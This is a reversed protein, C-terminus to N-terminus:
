VKVMNELETEIYNKSCPSFMKSHDMPLKEAYSAMMFKSADCQNIPRGDHQAGLNHGIEHAFTLVPTSSLSNGSFTVFGTNQSLLLIEGNDFSTRAYNQCM